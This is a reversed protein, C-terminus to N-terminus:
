PYSRFGRRFFNSLKSARKIRGSADELDLPNDNPLYNFFYNDSQGVIGDKRGANWVTLAAPSTM